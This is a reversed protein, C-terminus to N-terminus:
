LDLNIMDIVKQQLALHDINNMDCAETHITYLSRQDAKASVCSVMNLGQKLLEGLIRSLPFIKGKCDVSISIQVGGQLCPSVTVTCDTFRSDNEAGHRISNPIMLLDRQKELEKINGEMEKIYNVAEHMHDSVSRKGKVYQLPLLSRLSSYLAAMEQRRQREIDRHIIKRLKFHDDSAIGDEKNTNLKRKSIRKKQSNTNPPIHTRTTDMSAFDM